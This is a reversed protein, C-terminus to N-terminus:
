LHFSKNVDSDHSGHCQNVQKPSRKTAITISISALHRLSLTHGFGYVCGRIYASDVTKSFDASLMEVVEFLV